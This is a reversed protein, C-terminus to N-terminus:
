IARQELINFVLEAIFKADRDGYRKLLGKAVISLDPAKSMEEGGGLLKKTKAWSTAKGDPLSSELIEKTPWREACKKAFYLSREAINSDKHLENIFKTVGVSHEAQFQNIVSGWDHYMYVLEINSNFKRETKIAQIEELLQNYSEDKVVLGGEIVTLEDM